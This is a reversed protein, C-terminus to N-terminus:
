RQAPRSAVTSPATTPESPRTTPAIRPADWMGWAMPIVIAVNLWIMNVLVANRWNVRWDVLTDAFEPQGFKSAAFKSSLPYLSWWMLATMVVIGMVVVVFDSHMMGYYACLTVIVTGNCAISLYSAIMFGRRGKQDSPDRQWEVFARVLAALTANFISIPIAIAISQLVKRLM